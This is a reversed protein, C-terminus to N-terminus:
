HLKAAVLTCSTTTRTGRKIGYPLAYSTFLPQAFFSSIQAATWPKRHTETENKIVIGDWPHRDILVMEQYAYRFLSNVYMLRESSTKSSAGITQLWAKFYNAEQRTVKTIPKNHTFNEYLKLALERSRIADATIKLGDAKKWTDFVDRLYYVKEPEKVTPAPPTPVLWGDDRSVLLSATDLQAILIAKLADKIRPTAEDVTLGLESALQHLAPLADEISNFKIAEQLRGAEELNKEALDVQEWDAM